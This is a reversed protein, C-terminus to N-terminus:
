VWSRGVWLTPPLESAGIKTNQEAAALSGIYGLDVLDQAVEACLAQFM